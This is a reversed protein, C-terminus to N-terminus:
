APVALGPWDLGWWSVVAAWVLAVAALAAAEFRASRPRVVPLTLLTTDYGRGALGDALRSARSWSRVLVTGTLDGAARLRVTMASRGPRGVAADGLRARQAERVTVVTELLVFCLRYMLAAIDLCADPIRLRRGAGILDVMPTTTALVMVALAGALGHILVGVARSASETAVSFPGAALWAGAPNEGVTVAVTAAGLVVFAAPVSMARALLAAPVRAPGLLALVATAGM